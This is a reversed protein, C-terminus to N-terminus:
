RGAPPPGQPPQPPQPGGATMITEERPSTKGNRSPLGMQDFASPEGALMKRLEIELPDMTEYLGETEILMGEGLRDLLEEGHFIVRQDLAQVAPMVQTIMRGMTRQKEIANVGSTVVIRLLQGLVGQEKSDPAFLPSIAEQIRNESRLLPRQFTDELSSLLDQTQTNLEDVIELVATASTDASIARDKIGMAFVQALEDADDSRMGAVFGWEGIKNAKDPWIIDTEQMVLPDSSERKMLQNPDQSLLSGERIGVPNWSCYAMAEALSSEAHDISAILRLYNYAYPIAYNGIDPREPVVVWYHIPDEEDLKMVEKDVQQWVEDREYDILTYIHIERKLEEKTQAAVPDAPLTEHLLLLDVESFENRRCVMSRLPYVRMGMPTNQVANNGEVLNRLLLSAGRSRTNKQKISHMMDMTRGDIRDRLSQVLGPDTEQAQEARRLERWAEPPLDVRGWLVGPPMMIKLTASALARVAATGKSTWPREYIRDGKPALTPLTLKATQEAFDLTEAREPSLEDYIMSPKPDAM